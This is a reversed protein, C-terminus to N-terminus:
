QSATTNTHEETIGIWDQLTKNTDFKDEETTDNYLKQAMKINALWDKKATVLKKMLKDRKIRFFPSFEYIPLRGLGYNWEKLVTRNLIEVGELTDLQDSQQLHKNRAEWLQLITHWGQRIVRTSWTHISRRSSTSFYFNRQYDLIKTSVLGELFEQWGIAGQEKIALVLEKDAYRPITIDEGQKWAKIESM